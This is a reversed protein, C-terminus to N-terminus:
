RIPVPEEKVALWRDLTQLLDDRGVPKSIYDDMGAALCIERHSAMANATMAVIPMRRQSSEVAAELRRIAATAELGDMVPMHMDMLCLDFPQTQMLDVAAAGDVAITVVYGQKELLRRALKQNVPNDEAVLIRGSRIAAAPVSPRKVLPKAANVIEDRNLPKKVWTKVGALQHAEQDAPIESGIVIAPVEVNTVPLLRLARLLDLADLSPLHHGTIILDFAVTAAAAKELAERASAVATVDFAAGSLTNSLIRRDIPQDEVLLVRPGQAEKLLGFRATFHFTSGRGPQSVVWIRGGMAAVLRSSIALGMGVGGYGRTTANDGQEFAKFITQQRDEPIGVGTDCVSFHLTTELDGV